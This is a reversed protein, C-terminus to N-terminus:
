NNMLKSQSLNLILLVGLSILNVRVMKMRTMNEILQNNLQKKPKM